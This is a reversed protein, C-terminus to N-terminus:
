ANQSKGSSASPLNSMEANSSRHDNHSQQRATTQSQTLLRLLHHRQPANLGLQTAEYEPKRPGTGSADTLIYLSNFASPWDPPQQLDLVLPHFAFVTNWVVRLSAVAQPHWHFGSVYSVLIM